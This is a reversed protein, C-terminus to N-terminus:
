APWEKELEEILEQLAAIAASASKAARQATVIAIRQSSPSGSQRAVLAGCTDDEAARLHHRITSLLQSERHPHM